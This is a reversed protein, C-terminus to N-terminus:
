AFSKAVAYGSNANSGITNAEAIPYHTTRVGKAGQMAVRKGKANVMEVIRPAITAKASPSHEKRNTQVDQALASASTRTAVGATEVNKKPTDALAFHCNQCARAGKAHTCAFHKGEAPLTAARTPIMSAMVSRSGKQRFTQADLALASAHIRTAVGITAAVV